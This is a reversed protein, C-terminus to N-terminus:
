RRWANSDITFNCKAAGHECVFVVAGTRPQAVGALLAM